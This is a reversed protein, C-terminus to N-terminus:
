QTTSQLFQRAWTEYIALRCVTNELTASRNGARFRRLIEHIGSRDVLDLLHRPRSLTDEIWPALPGRLWESEPTSFGLKTKRTRIREPLLGTLGERLVAKTWGRFLRMQVPLAALWQVLVHDVFPVRSEIGFAMTNRDEYRLLVPLSSYKLDAEIREGIGRSVAISPPRSPTESPWLLSATPHSNRLYRWGDAFRTTRVIDPNGLFAFAERSAEFAHGESLLQRL